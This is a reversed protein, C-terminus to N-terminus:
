RSVLLINGDAFTISEKKKITVNKNPSLNEIEDDVASGKLLVYRGDEKLLSDGVEIINKLESFARSTIVTIGLNDQNLKYADKQLPSLNELGLKRRVEQMFQIKKGVRECAFVKAETMISIIVSPLGAGAGVDLVIDSDNIFPIIQISDLIHRSYIYPVTEPGILNIKGSWKFLLEAYLDIQKLKDDSISIKLEECGELFLNRDNQPM